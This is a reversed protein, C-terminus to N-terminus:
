RGGRRDLLLDGVVAAMVIAGGVCTMVSPIEGFALWVWLPGLPTELTGVLASKTASIVRTGLTLLLLGLGFQATGFLLLYPLDPGLGSGPSAIPAVVVAVAFASLCASPLMSVSRNHRIIVMMIAILGTMVLALLNGVLHGAEVAADFMVIVGAFAVVSAVLTTPSEREATAAWAIAATMFPLTANIVLVDAVTTLRLANIFCITALTSCAAVILGARGM